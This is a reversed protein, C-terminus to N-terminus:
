CKETLEPVENIQNFCYNQLKLSISIMEYYKSTFMHIIYM